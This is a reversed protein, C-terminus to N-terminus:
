ATGGIERHRIGRRVRSITIPSLGLERAASRCSFEPGLRRVIIQGASIAKSMGNCRPSCFPRSHNRVGWRPREFQKQCKACTFIM